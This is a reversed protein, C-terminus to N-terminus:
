YGISDLDSQLKEFDSLEPNLELAFSMTIERGNFVAEIQDIKLEVEYYEEAWEKYTAPNGDLLRLLDKSGDTYEDNPLKANGILWDDDRAHQWICFTTGISKVPDNYIFDNFKKPLGELVGLPIEQVLETKVQLKRGLLKDVISRAATVEVNRWGNMKSEQAFGNICTGHDTFLILVQDGNGHRIECVEESVSWDKQYSFYRYQWDPSLIAELASISKCKQRLEVSKPLLNM